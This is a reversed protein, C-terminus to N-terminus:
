SNLTEYTGQKSTMAKGKTKTCLIAELLTHEEASHINQMVYTSANLFEKVRNRSPGDIDPIMNRADKLPLFSVTSGRQNRIDYSTRGYTTNFAHEHFSLRRTPNAPPARYYTTNEAFQACMEIACLVDQMTINKTPPNRIPDEFPRHTENTGLNMTEHVQHIGNDVEGSSPGAAEDIPTGMLTFGSNFPAQDTMNDLLSFEHSLIEFERETIVDLSLDSHSDSLQSLTKRANDRIQRLVTEAVKIAIPSDTQEVSM